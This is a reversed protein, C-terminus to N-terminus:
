FYVSIIFKVALVDIEFLRKSEEALKALRRNEVDAADEIFDSNDQPEELLKNDNEPIVIEFDNRPAPLSSLGRRLHAKLERQLWFKPTKM